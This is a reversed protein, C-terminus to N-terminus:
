NFVMGGDIVVAQGTMYDSDPGALFSVCAAVDSPESVRKLTINKAFQEMGWEFPEGNNDALDQAVKQMMPTNVIGPCYANVTIGLSALDRATTQTIGRVAFKTGSYVALDPNGVQGAQSCANIIKGGHGLEKFAKVAAQTGWLVGGVNVDFCTRYIEPTIDEIPTIPAVGANNIVVDLGGLKEVAEAVAAFVSDRDTVNVAVACAKGGAAILREAVASVGALNIDACAVAFGDQSLRLAIAEGIGQGAGTIFAVKGSVKTM